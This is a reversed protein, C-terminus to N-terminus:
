TTSQDNFPFLFPFLFPDHAAISFVLRAIVKLVPGEVVLRRVVHNHLAVRNGLPADIIHTRVTGGSQSNPAARFTDEIAVFQSILQLRNQLTPQNQSQFPLFGDLANRAVTDKRTFPLPDPPIDPFGDDFQKM